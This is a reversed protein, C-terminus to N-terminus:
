SLKPLYSFSCETSQTGAGVVKFRYFGHPANTIAAQMVTGNIVTVSDSTYFDYKGAVTSVKLWNVGDLSGELTATGATTGTTQVFSAQLMVTGESSTSRVNDSYITAADTLTVDDLKILQSM